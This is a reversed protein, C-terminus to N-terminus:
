SVKYRARLIDITPVDAPVAEKTVTPTPENNNSNDDAEVVEAAIGTEIQRMLGFIQESWGSLLRSKKDSPQTQAQGNGALNISYVRCDNNVERRYRNIMSQITAHEGGKGFYKNMDVRCNMADFSTYCCLDSLLIIRDVKVKRQRLDDLGFWLGTETAQGVGLGSKYMPIALANHKERRDEIAVKEIRAKINMCSDSESFPVWVLSDGFVGILTRRGFRKAAIAALTNGADSVRMTSLGSVACGRASGSNDVFVVTVGELEPINMCAIDLKKDAISKAQTSSVNSEATFFQFPLQKTNVISTCNKYVKDWAEESIKAQEFNRLNKMLAEEPMYPIAMEWTEKKSGLHSVINQWTLGAKDLLEKSVPDGPKLAFFEKRATLMEPAGDIIKGNVLYEFMPKSLPWNTRNGRVAKKTSSGGIMLLVDKFTPAEDTNYKILAYPKQVSLASCLARRLAHPLGGKYIAGEKKNFLHRFAAFVHRVEDARQMVSTAYRELFPKTKDNAAAICFLIQPTYRIKLGSKPDRLWSAIVLLDEPNDSNAVAHATEIVLRAQENLGMSDCITTSIKGTTRLETYFDVTSRETEYYRPENFYGGGIMHILKTTPDNIEYARGPVHKHPVTEAHVIEHAKGRTKSTGLKKTM